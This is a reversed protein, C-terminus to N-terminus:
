VQEEIRIISEALITGPISVDGQETKFTAMRRPGLLYLQDVMARREEYTTEAWTTNFTGMSPTIIVLRFM